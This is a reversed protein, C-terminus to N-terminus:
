GSHRNILACLAVFINQFHLIQENTLLAIPDTGYKKQHLPGIGKLEPRYLYIWWPGAELLFLRQADSLVNGRRLLFDTGNPFIAFYRSTKSTSFLSPVFIISSQSRRIVSSSM